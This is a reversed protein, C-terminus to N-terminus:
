SRDAVVDILACREWQLDPLATLVELSHCECAHYVASATLCFAASALYVTFVGQDKWTTSRYQVVETAGITLLLFFFM